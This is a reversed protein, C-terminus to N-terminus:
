VRVSERVRQVGFFPVVNPHRLQRLIGIENEAAQWCMLVCALACMYKIYVCVLTFFGVYTCVFLYACLGHLFLKVVVCLLLFLLLLFCPVGDQLLCFSIEMHMVDAPLTRPSCMEAKRQTRNRHEHLNNNGDLLFRKAALKENRGFIQLIFFYM